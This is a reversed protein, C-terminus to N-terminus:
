LMNFNILEIGKKTTLILVKGTVIAKKKKLKSIECSLRRRDM